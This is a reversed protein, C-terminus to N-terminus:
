QATCWVHVPIKILLQPLPSQPFIREQWRVTATAICRLVRATFVALCQSLHKPLINQHWVQQLQFQHVEDAQCCGQAEVTGERANTRKSDTSDFFCQASRPLPSAASGLSAGRFTAWSPINLNRWRRVHISVCSVCFPFPRSFTKSLLHFCDLFLATSLIRVSPIRPFRRPHHAM